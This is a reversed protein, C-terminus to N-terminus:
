SSHHRAPSLAREKLQRAAQSIRNDLTRSYVANGLPASSLSSSHPLDEEEVQELTEEISVNSDFATVSLLLIEDESVASQSDQQRDDLLVTELAPSSLALSRFDRNLIPKALFPSHGGISLTIPPPPSVALSKETSEAPSLPQLMTEPELLVLAIGNLIKKFVQGLGVGNQHKYHKFSREAMKSFLNPNDLQRMMTKEPEDSASAEPSSTELQIQEANRRLIANITIPTDVSISPRIALPRKPATTSVSKPPRRKLSELTEGSVLREKLERFFALDSEMFLPDDKFSLGGLSVGDVSDYASVPMKFAQSLRVLVTESLNLKQAAEELTHCVANNMTNIILLIDWPDMKNYRIGRLGM